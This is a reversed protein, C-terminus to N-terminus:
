QQVAVRLDNMTFLSRLEVGHKALLASGGQQRDIVCLATDVIAGGARLATISEVVQGGSTVVDEVVVTRRGEISAGEALKCTGYEKAKKRVFATPMGTVLGLATVLPIGGLELGALVDAARPVERALEWAIRLLLSPECEFLYKDFYETSRVGSRLLFDGVLHSHHFIERALDINM